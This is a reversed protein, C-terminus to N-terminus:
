NRRSERNEEKVMWDVTRKQIKGIVWQIIAIFVSLFSAKGM